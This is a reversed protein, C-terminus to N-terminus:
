KEFTKWLILLGAIAGATTLFAGTLSETSFEEVKDILLWSGGSAIAAVAAWAIPVLPLPNDVVHFVATLRALPQGEFEEDIPLFSIKYFYVRKFEEDIPIAKALERVHVPSGGDYPVKVSM